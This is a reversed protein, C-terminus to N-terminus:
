EQEYFCRGRILKAYKNVINRVNDKNVRNTETRLEFAIDRNPLGLVHLEWVKKEHADFFYGDHFYQSALRYYNQKEEFTEQTYERALRKQPYDKLYGKRNEADEFGLEKLKQYWYAQLQEFDPDKRFPM